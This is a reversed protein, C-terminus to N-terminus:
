IGLVRRYDKLETGTDRIVHSQQFDQVFLLFSPIYIMKKVRAAKKITQITGLTTLVGGHLYFVLGDTLRICLWVCWKEAQIKSQYFCFDSSIWTFIIYM